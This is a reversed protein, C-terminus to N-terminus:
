IKRSRRKRLIALAGISLLAVTAPEPTVTFDGSIQIGTVNFIPDTGITGFTINNLLGTAIGDGDIIVGLHIDATIGPEDIQIPDLLFPLTSETGFGTTDEPPLISLISIWDFGLPLSAGEIRLQVDTLEWQYDYEIAGTEVPPSEPGWTDTSGDLSEFDFSWTVARASSGLCMLLLILSFVTLSKKM